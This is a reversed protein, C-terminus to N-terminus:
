RHYWLMLLLTPLFAALFSSSLISSGLKFHSVPHGFPFCFSSPHWNVVFSSRRNSISFLFNSVYFIQLVLAFSPSFSSFRPPFAPTFPPPLDRFPFAPNLIWLVAFCPLLTLALFCFHIFVYGLFSLPVAQLLRIFIFDVSFLLLNVIIVIM